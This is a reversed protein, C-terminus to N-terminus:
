LTPQVGRMFFDGDSLGVSSLESLPSVDGGAESEGYFFGTLMREGAKKSETNGKM